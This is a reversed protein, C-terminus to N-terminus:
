REGDVGLGFLAFDGRVPDDGFVERMTDTLLVATRFSAGMPKGSVTRPLLGFRTAEQMVHTDLPMLLDSSSYWGSWLGLDVPSNNRVMWRLFMNLKKQAGDKGRAILSCEEPFFDPILHTLYIKGGDSGMLNEKYVDEMAKGISGKEVLMMRIGEFFLRMDHGTYMRYFSDDTDEFFQEYRKGCIWEVASCDMDDMIMRIHSLIQDRRGFALNASVFAVAEQEVPDTVQHMFFSPDKLIFNSAEYKEALALLRKRLEETM